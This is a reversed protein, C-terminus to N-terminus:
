QKRRTPGKGREKEAAHEISPVSKAIKWKRRPMLGLFLDIERVEEVFTLMALSSRVKMM